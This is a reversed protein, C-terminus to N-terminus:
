CILERYVAYTKEVAAQWTFLEARARGAEALTERLIHDETLRKLAQSIEEVSYPNVLLAADGAVEPLASTTSTVVPVGRAMADLIPMGFGEDLSPFAFISSEAFLQELEQNSVYGTVRIREFSPRTSIRDLIQAAGFGTGAGALVLTWEPPLQEFADV